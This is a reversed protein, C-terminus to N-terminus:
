KTPASKKQAEYLHLETLKIKENKPGTLTVRLKPASVAQFDCLSASWRSLSGWYIPIWKGRSDAEIILKCDPGDNMRLDLARIPSSSSPTIMLKLEGEDSFTLEEMTDINSDQLAKTDVRKGNATLQWTPSTSGPKILKVDSVRIELGQWGTTCTFECASDATLSKTRPSIWTKGQDHVTVENGQSAASIYEGNPLMFSIGWNGHDRLLYGNITLRRDNILKRGKEGGGAELANALLPRTYSIELDGIQHKIVAKLPIPDKSEQELKVVLSKEQRHDRGSAGEEFTIAELGEFKVKDSVFTVSTSFPFLPKEWEKAKKEDLLGVSRDAFPEDISVNVEYNVPDPKDEEIKPDFSIRTDIGLAIEACYAATLPDLKQNKLIEKALPLINSQLLNLVKERCGPVAPIKKLLAHLERMKPPTNNGMAAIALSWNRKFTDLMRVDGDSVNPVDMFTKARFQPAGTIALNQKYSCLGLLWAGTRIYVNLVGEAGQYELRNANFCFSGDFTRLMSLKWKLSEMQRQLTPVGVSASAPFAWLLTLTETSHGQDAGGVEGHSYLASCNKTFGLPGGYVFSALLYPANRGSYTAGNALAPETSHNEATRGYPAFGSPAIQQARTLMKAIVSRDFQAPTKAALALAMAMHSGGVSVGTGRYGPHTGHGSVYDGYLMENILRNAANRIPLVMREDKYRLYYECLFTTATSLPVGWWDKVGSFAIFEAAKKINEDYASNGTAMLALGAVATDYHSKTYGGPRGGGPHGWCGEPTQQAILWAATMEIVKEAKPCNKPFGEAYSGLKMIPFSIEKAMPKLADPLAMAPHTEVSATVTAGEGPAASGKLTWNGPPTQFLIESDAHAWWTSTETDIKKGGYGSRYILPILKHLPVNGSSGVLTLNKWEAGDSGNGNGGDSILLKCLEGGKLPVNLTLGKEKEEKNMMSASAVTKWQSTEKAPTQAIESPRIVTLQAVGKSEAKDMLEGAHMELGRSDQFQYNGLPHRLASATQFSEGNMGLLLDGTKLHGDAPSGPIVHLVEFANTTLEGKDNVLIAPFKKKFAEMNGWTFDHMRVRIGLPGFYLHWAEAVDDKDGFWSGWPMKYENGLTDIEQKQAFTKKWEGVNSPIKSTAGPLQSISSLLITVFFFPLIRM